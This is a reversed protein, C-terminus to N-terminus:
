NIKEIEGNRVKIMKGFYKVGDEVVGIGSGDPVGYITHGTQKSYDTLERIFNESNDFHPAFEFDVLDLGKMDTLRVENKDIKDHPITATVITPTLINAGASVGLITGGNQAYKKLHIDFGHKKINQLFYFANGGSLYIINSELVEEIDELSYPEELPFYTFEEVGLSSYYTQVQQYYDKSGDLKSPIYALSIESEKIAGLM